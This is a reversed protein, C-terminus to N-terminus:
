TNKRYKKKRDPVEFFANNYYPFIRANKYISKLDNNLDHSFGISYTEPIKLDVRAGDALKISITVPHTGKNGALFNKIDSLTTDENANSAELELIYGNTKKKLASDLEEIYDAVISCKGEDTKQFTGEIWFIRDTVLMDRKQAYLDSFCVVEMAGDFDELTIFAMKDGKKTVTEKKSKLIAAVGIKTNTETDDFASTLVSNLARLNDRYQELPHGSIYFGLAEKEYALTESISWNEFDKVLIGNHSASEEENSDEFINKQGKAKEKKKTLAANMASEISAFLRARNKEFCDFAGSKLLGEIVKKNVKRGDARVLFDFFDKFEGNAKREELISHFASIGVNKIAPFGFRIGDEEVVFDDESKNIDPPFIKINNERCNQIFKVVGDQNGLECSLLAAQFEMPYHTKLWATQYSVLAYAASHSKNFGYEAFKEMLNFIHEAKDKPINRELAGKMFRERQAAMEDAKKKGMARRLNDGEGLSYGALIRAITMVQEQYLIVGYTEKLTPELEPLIYDPEAYGHKVKTYQEDMGSGLPGPRYLALIAILDSFDTPKMKKLLNRMGSSELQFIGTTDGRSILEYVATNDLPLAAIDIDINHQKKIIKLATDIVTLNKLGLFDFKILGIEEVCKMDFQTVTEGKQGKALPLYETLPKDAIVVGAAHTSNHRPLGELRKAIEMLENFNQDSELLEKLKPEEKFAKELTMKPDEPVLKAIKNVDKLPIALARGVDRIVLKAKMQGFTVIQAVYEEGGYKDRVYEIVKDRGNVCFDVDIDPLSKREINLFREFFLGFKVPDVDTIGLSFAVLSGAASGRGPGVPIKNDKAWNIFDSVILFYSPFKMKKIVDIELELRKEYEELNNRDIHGSAIRKQFGERSKKEFVEDYTEEKKIPFLPFKPNYLELEVNCREAVELTRSIVDTNYHFRSQMEEPSTFYLKDTGFKMRHEDHVTKNTQICLLTDHAKIDEFNLYHCDNTAVVPIGYEKSISFIGNNVTTQDPIDNEQVELYLRDGFIKLYRETIAKVDANDGHTITFPIQGHLCATLAIIGENFEELLALDIRPKYHFGKLQAISALKILNKYGTLNQALLVLHFGAEKASKATKDLHSTPSVYAECGLIPKIGTKKLAKYFNLVGFMTGHDTIAISNYGYQKAKETLDKIRIAGDLLSYETHLHLHTFSM